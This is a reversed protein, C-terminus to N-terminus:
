LVACGPVGQAVAGGDIAVVLGVLEFVKHLIRPPQLRVKGKCEADALGHQLRRIFRATFLYSRGEVHMLPQEIARCAGCLTLCYLRVDLKGGATLRAPELRIPGRLKGVHSRAYGEGVRGVVLCGNAATESHEVVVESLADHVGKILVSGEAQGGGERIGGAAEGCVIRRAEGAHM